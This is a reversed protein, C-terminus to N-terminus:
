RLRHVTRPRLRRHHLAMCPRCVRPLLPFVWALHVLLLWVLLSPRTDVMDMVLSVELLRRPRRKSSGLLLVPLVTDVVLPVTDM